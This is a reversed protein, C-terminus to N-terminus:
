NYLTDQLIVLFYLVQDLQLKRISKLPAKCMSM